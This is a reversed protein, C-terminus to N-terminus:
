DDIDTFLSTKGENPSTSNQRQQVKPITPRQYLPPIM